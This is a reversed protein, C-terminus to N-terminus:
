SGAKAELPSAFEVSVAGLEVEINRGLWHEGAVASAPWHISFILKGQQGVDLTQTPIDVFSGPYGV